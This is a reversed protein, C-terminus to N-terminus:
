KGLGMVLVRFTDPVTNRREQDGSGKEFDATPLYIRKTVPDYAVTRAGRETPVTAVPAWQGPGLSGVVTLNGDAGNASYAYGDVWVVGDPGSGIPVTALPKLSSASIKMVHNACVSYINSQMDLAIGSPEECGMLKARQVIKMASPDFSVVEATDELNLYVLGDAGLEAAEPRGGLAVTAIVKLTSADIVSLDSSHGNLVLLRKLSPVYTMADPSKGVAIKKKSQLSSLEFVTVSDDKGNSVFGLGLEEATVIGHVGPTDPITGVKANSDLDIVDVQTGHSVYLRRSKAAVHVYDWRGAGGLKIRDVLKVDPAASASLPLALALVSAALSLRFHM